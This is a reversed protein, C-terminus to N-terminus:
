RAPALGLLWAPNRAAMLYLQEDSLGCEKLERLFAALGDAPLPNGAQGLDSALVCREPGVYRIADAYDKATLERNKGILGNYVFEIFAGAQAAERMEAKSMRVPSLMAHTVLIRRVGRKVAERILLRSEAPALHGTALVLDHKRVVDLVGIVAPLLRGERTVPVSPRSERFHRVHNEADFTPMWVIRGRQGLVQVMHEVAAPNIGGLALNLAVGGFVEVTSVAKAAFYAWSATPEYHSKLVLARLGAKSAQEAAEIADLARPIRDPGCHVHLDVLGRLTQAPLFVPLLILWWRWAVTVTQERIARNGPNEVRGGAPDNQSEGHISARAALPLM